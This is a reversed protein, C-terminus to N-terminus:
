GYVAANAAVISGVFLAVSVAACLAIGVVPSKVRRELAFMGLAAATGGVLGGIHAAWSIGPIAFSFILNFIILGGIGSRWPNIGLSRQYVFAVGFLGFIAGSAGLAGEFPNIILVLLSGALLSTIYLSLYRWRGLAVELQAGILYLCLMNLGLHVINEHLFGGTVIRWWEGGAVGELSGTPGRYGAITYGLDTLSQGGLVVVQQALFVIANIAILTYTVVPQNLRRVNRTNYVQQRSGKACDPCHFGVSAQVMCSPCIPNGCRQCRVGARRDPHRYCTTITESM